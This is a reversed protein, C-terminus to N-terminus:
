RWILARSVEAQVNDRSSYRASAFRIEAGRHALEEGQVRLRRFRALADLRLSSWTPIMEGLLQAIIM